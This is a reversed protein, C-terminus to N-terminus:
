SQKGGIDAYVHIPRKQTIVEMLHKNHMPMLPAQQSMDVHDKLQELYNLADRVDTAGYLEFAECYKIAEAVSDTGAKEILNRILECQDRFYRPKRRKLEELYADCRHELKESLGLYLSQLKVEKDRRHDTNKILLGKGSSIPFETIVYDGFIQSIILRDGQVKLEVEKERNYTGLPLSYRNSNYIVTNDKRVKRTISDKCVYTQTIPVPRLHASEVIFVEAPVKKTTGHLKKNGTRDLWDEFSRNLIDLGMFIRNELFNYKVYKVVNEIKGKSEPDSKRCLYVHLKQAQKFREFAATYIIDGYNEDVSVISDQDFVLELPKGGMYEFCLEIAEILDLSTFPRDRFWGWKYRSHSLVFAVFHVTRWKGDSTRMHKQGFDVQMQKGPALEEVAEYDRPQKSRTRPIDHDERIQTVVRRTTRESSDISYHELLWDHVQSASMGPYERLWDLIVPAYSMLTHSKRIQESSKLYDDPSMNWYKAVTDRSIGLFKATLAKSYLQQKLQQIESYM